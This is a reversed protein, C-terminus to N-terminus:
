QVELVRKEQSSQLALEIIKVVERAQEPKVALEEQGLLARYINQYYARYDGPESEVNGKLRLGQLQTTLQGWIEEPEAGWNPWTAPTHGQKLLDEQVDLGYKLFTGQDGHLIYRPAPERVLMGASLSVRLPGYFLTLDFKDVIQSHARQTRVEAFLEQPPGFLCLAQDILHSGLDYLVGTGAAPDEKWTNERITNRFRDFHAKYEVLNGLAGSALVKQVTKFDSDWRRNQFVSLLKGQQQALNILEEAERTTVTFPKDVVVHKGAALASKVLSYHSTNPTAVVVLEIATDELIDEARSTIVAQPYRRQALAINPEKSERICVLELGEVEQIMPAHFIQGAMGYGVLGVNIKKQTDAM